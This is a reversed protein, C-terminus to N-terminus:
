LFLTHPCVVVCLLPVASMTLGLAVCFSWPRSELGAERGPSAWAPRGGADVALNWGGGRLKGVSAGSMPSCLSTVGAPGQGLEQGAPETVYSLNDGMRQTPAM